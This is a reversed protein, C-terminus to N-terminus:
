DAGLERLAIELDDIAEQTRTIQNHLHLPLEGVGYTAAQEQLYQLDSYRQALEKRLAEVEGPGDKEVYDIGKATLYISSFIRTRIQRNKSFLYGKEELYAIELQARETTTDLSGILDDSAM